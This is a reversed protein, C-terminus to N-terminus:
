ASLHTNITFQRLSSPRPELAHALDTLRKDIFDAPLHVPFSLDVEVDHMATFYPGVSRMRIEYSLIDNQAKWTGVHTRLATMFEVLTM